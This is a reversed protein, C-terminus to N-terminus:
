DAPAKIIDGGKMVFIPSELLAVNQTPDGMVGVLDGSAGSKVAGIRTSLLTAGPLDIVQAASPVQVSARLGVTTIVGSQIVIAPSQIVKGTTIDLLRDATVYINQALAAPAMLVAIAALTISRM